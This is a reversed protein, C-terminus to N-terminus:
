PQVRIASPRAREVTLAEPWGVFREVAVLTLCLALVVLGLVVM